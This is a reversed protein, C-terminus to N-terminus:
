LYLLVGCYRLELSWKVGRDINELLSIKGLFSKWDPLNAAYKKGLIVPAFSEFVHAANSKGIVLRITSNFM